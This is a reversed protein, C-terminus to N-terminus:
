SEQGRVFRATITVPYAPDRHELEHADLEAASVGYLFSAATLVNGHSEVSLSGGSAVLPRLLAELSLETFAWYWRVGSAPPEIATIGPVTILATGGPALARAVQSLAVRVDLVLQLTQTLIVCDYAADPLSGSIGLDATVTARDNAPDVDLIDSLAVRDGGFRVTYRDDGVELVRGRVDAAHRALFQEVYYRDVPGGRDYGWRTSLPSLRRFSGFDLWGPPTTYPRGHRRARAWALLPALVRSRTLARVARVRIPAHGDEPILM